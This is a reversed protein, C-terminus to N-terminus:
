MQANCALRIACIYLGYKKRHEYSCETFTHRKLQNRENFEVTQWNKVTLENERMIKYINNNYAFGSLHFLPLTASFNPDGAFSKSEIKFIFVKWCLLNLEFVFIFGFFEHTVKTSSTTKNKKSDTRNNRNLHMTYDIRWCHKRKLKWM